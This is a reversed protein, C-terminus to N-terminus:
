SPKKSPRLSWGTSEKRAEKRARSYYAEPDRRIEAIKRDMDASWGQAAALQIVEM